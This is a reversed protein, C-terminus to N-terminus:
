NRSRYRYGRTKILQSVQTEIRQIRFDSENDHHQETSISAMRHFDSVELIKDALKTLELLEANLAQLIARTQITLRQFWLSKM